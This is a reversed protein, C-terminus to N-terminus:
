TGIDVTTTAAPAQRVTDLILPKYRDAFSELAALAKFPKL